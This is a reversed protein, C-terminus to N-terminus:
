DISPSDPYKTQLHALQAREDAEVEAANLEELRNIQTRIWPNGHFVQEVDARSTYPDALSFNREYGGAYLTKLFNIRLPLTSLQAAYFGDRDYHAIFGFSLHLDQYLAHSFLTPRFDGAILRVLRNAFTAKNAASDHQSAVFQEASYRPAVPATTMEFIITAPGLTSLLTSAFM